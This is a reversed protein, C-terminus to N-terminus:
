CYQLIKLHNGARIKIINSLSIHKAFQSFLEWTTHFERM